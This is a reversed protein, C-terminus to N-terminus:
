IVLFIFSGRSPFEVVDRPLKIINNQLSVIHTIAAGLLNVM